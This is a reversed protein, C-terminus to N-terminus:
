TNLSRARELRASKCIHAEILKGDDERVRVMLNPECIYANPNRDKHFKRIAMELLRVIQPEYVAVAAVYECSPFVLTFQPFDTDLPGEIFQESSKALHDALIPERSRLDDVFSEWWTSRRAPSPQEKEAAPPREGPRDVAPSRDVALSQRLRGLQVELSAVRDALAKVDALNNARAIAIAITLQPTLRFWEGNVRAASHDSHLRAEDEATGEMAALLTLKHPCGTQLSAVRREPNGDTFGIKVLDTGTAHVFYIAM